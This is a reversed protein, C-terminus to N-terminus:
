KENHHTHSQHAQKRNSNIVANVDVEIRTIESHDNDFGSDTFYVPPTPPLYATYYLAYIIHRIKYEKRIKNQKKV